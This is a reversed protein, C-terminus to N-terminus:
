KDAETAKNALRKGRKSGCALYRCTKSCYHQITTSPHEFTNNCGHRLCISKM